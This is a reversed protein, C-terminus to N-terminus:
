KDHYTYTYTKKSLLNKNGDYIYKEKRLGNEYKYEGIKKPKGSADLETEKIRNNESDYEYLNHKDIKGDKYEIEEITNGKTDYKEEADISVITKGKEIKEQHTIRSKIKGSSNTQANVSFNGSIVIAILFIIPVLIKKNM